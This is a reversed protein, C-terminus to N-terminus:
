INNLVAVAREEEKPYLHAYTKLTTEVDAHGLRRAIEKINIGANCLVSAHSHRFEHITIHPLGARERWRENAKELVTDPIPAPGGCIFLSPEWGEAKKQRAEHEDLAAILQAPMQIRRVSAPTKPPTEIWKEGKIKQTVSRRVWVYSGDELDSWRLANIEGKRMGTYYALMFFIYIGWARLTDTKEAEKKGEAIFKQFESKTYYRLKVADSAAYPDRFPRLAAMPSKEILKRAVAYNLLARLEKYAGNKTTTKKDLAGIKTRWCLLTEETLDCMPIKGLDPMVHTKLITKKKALTSARIEGGHESEYLDLTQQLTLDGSPAAKKKKAPRLAGEGLLKRMEAEAAEAQGKGCVLKEKRKKRGAADTWNVIVRYKQLGNRKEGELKYIPM